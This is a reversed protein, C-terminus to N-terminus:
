DLKTAQAIIILRNSTSIQFEELNYNGFLYLIKLKNVELYKKFDFLTIAKVREEFNYKKGQDFFQIRKVIFNNEIKKTIEFEIGDIIKVEHLVLNEIVKHANMFDIVFLGNTNLAKSVCNITAYDDKESDFYGFSTFLNIVFDFKNKVSFLRMDEVYFKLNSKEELKANSINEPSLDMGVVNFGKKNLYISHRGKGCALDLFSAHIPPNLFDVLKDIFLEAEAINRHKYLIHYYPSDFWNEFWTSIKNKIM